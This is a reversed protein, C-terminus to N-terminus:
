MFGDDESAATVIVVGPSSGATPRQPSESPSPRRAYSPQKSGAARPSAATAARGPGSRRPSRSTLGSLASARTAVPTPSATGVAPGRPSASALALLDPHPVTDLLRSLGRVLDSPQSSADPVGHARKRQQATSVTAQQATHGPLRRRALSTSTRTRSSSATTHEVALREWVRLEPSASAAEHEEPAVGHDPQATPPPRQHSTSPQELPRHGPPIWPPSPPRIGTRSQTGSTNREVPPEKRTASVGEGLQATTAEALTLSAGLRLLEAFCRARAATEERTPARPPLLDPRRRALDHVRARVAEDQSSLWTTPRPQPQYTGAM